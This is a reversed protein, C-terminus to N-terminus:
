NNGDKPVLVQASIHKMEMDMVLTGLSYKDRVYNIVATKNRRDVNGDVIWADGSRELEPPDIVATGFTRVISSQRLASYRPALDNICLWGSEGNANMLIAGDLEARYRFFDSFHFYYCHKMPGDETSWDVVTTRGFLTAEVQSLRAEANHGLGVVCVLRFYSNNPDLAILQNKAESITKTIGSQRVMSYTEDFVQGSTLLLDRRQKLDVNPEKSKVEILYEDGDKEAYFDPRPQDSEPIKEIHYGFQESFTLHIYDEASIEPM